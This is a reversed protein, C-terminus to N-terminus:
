EEMKREEFERWKRDSDNVHVFSLVRSVGGAGLAPWVAAITPISKSNGKGGREM